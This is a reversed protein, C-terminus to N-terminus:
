YWVGLDGRLFCDVLYLLLSSYADLVGFLSGQPKKGSKGGGDVVDVSSGNRCTSSFLIVIFRDMRRQEKGSNSM